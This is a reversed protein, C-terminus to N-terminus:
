CSTKSPPTAQAAWATCWATGRMCPGTSCGCVDAASRATPTHLCPLSLLCLKRRVAARLGVQWWRRHAGCAGEAAPLQLRRVHLADMLPMHGTSLHMTSVFGVCASQLFFCRPGSPPPSGPTYFDWIRRLSGLDTIGGEYSSAPLRKREEEIRKQADWYIAETHQHRGTNEDDRSSVSFERSMDHTTAMAATSFLSLCLFWIGM